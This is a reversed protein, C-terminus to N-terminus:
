GHTGVDADNLRLSAPLVHVAHRSLPQPLHRLPPLRQRNSIFCEPAAYRHPARKLAKSSASGGTQSSADGMAENTVLYRGDAIGDEQAFPADLRSM